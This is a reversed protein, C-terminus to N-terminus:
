TSMEEFADFVARIAEACADDSLVADVTAVMLRWNDEPVEAWPVASSDRTTYGFSPALREYHEHFAKAVQEIPTM